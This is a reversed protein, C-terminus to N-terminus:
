KDDKSKITAAKAHIKDGVKKMNGKVNGKIEQVTGQTQLKKNGTIDGITKKSKGSLKDSMSSM